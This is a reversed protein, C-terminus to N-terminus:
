EATRKTPKATAKRRLWGEDFYHRVVPSSKGAAEILEDDVEAEGPALKEDAGIKAAPITAQVLGGGEQPLHLTIDHERLNELTIKPM